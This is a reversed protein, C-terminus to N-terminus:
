KVVKLLEIKFILTEGPGIVPPAGREGYALDSPIYVEAEGGEKMMQLMETWGAIVGNVPFQAPEGRKYSSDFVEGNILRGEYHCSVVSDPGPSEGNGQKVMKYQLGSDTTEVGQKKANEALFEAGTKKNEESASAMRQEVEKQMQQNFQELISAVQQDTLRPQRKKLADTIGAVLYDPDVDAQNKLLDRGMTLGIAYSVNQQFTTQNSQGSPLTEGSPQAHATAGSAAALALALCGYWYQWSRRM